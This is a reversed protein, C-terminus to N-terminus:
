NDWGFTRVMWMFIIWFGIKGIWLAILGRM